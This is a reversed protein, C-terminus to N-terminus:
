SHQKPLGAPLHLLRMEFATFAPEVLDAQQDSLECISGLLDRHAAEAAARLSGARADHVRGAEEAIDVLRSAAAVAGLVFDVDIRPSVRPRAGAPTLISESSSRSM